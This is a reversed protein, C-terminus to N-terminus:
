YDDDDYESVSLMPSANFKALASAAKSDSKSKNALWARFGEWRFCGFSGLAHAIMSDKHGDWNDDFWRTNDQLDAREFDAMEDHSLTGVAVM